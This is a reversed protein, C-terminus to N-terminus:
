KSSVTNATNHALRQRRLQGILYAASNSGYQRFLQPVLGNDGDALICADRRIHQLGGQHRADARHAAVHHGEAGNRRGSNGEQCYLFVGIGTNHYGCGVVRIFVVADLHEVALAVLEGVLHLGLHLLQDEVVGVNGGLGVSLDTSTEVAHALHLLIINM